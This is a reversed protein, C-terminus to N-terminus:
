GTIWMCNIHEARAFLNWVRCVVILKTNVM